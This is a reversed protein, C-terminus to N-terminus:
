VSVAFLSKRRRVGRRVRRSVKIDSPGNVGMGAINGGGAANAPAEENSVRHMFMHFKRNRADMFYQMFEDDIDENLIQEESKNTWEEKILWLAAAYSALRTKGGPIKGLLRKLRLIMVDFIKLSKKQEPTKRERKKLIINGQKDIVGEKFSDWKEFPTALRKLFQYVMFIDVVGTSAM